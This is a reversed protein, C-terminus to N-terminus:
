HHECNFLDVFPYLKNLKRLEISLLKNVKDTHKALKLEEPSLGLQSIIEERLKEIKNEETLNSINAALDWEIEQMALKFDGIGLGPSQLVIERIGMLSKYNKDILDILKFNRKQEAKFRATNFISIARDVYDNLSNLDALHKVQVKKAQRYKAIKQEFWSELVYRHCQYLAITTKEPKKLEAASLFASDIGELVLKLPIDYKKWCSIAENDVWTFDVEGKIRNLFYKKVQKLYDDISM